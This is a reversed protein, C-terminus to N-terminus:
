DDDRMDAEDIEHCNRCLGADDKVDNFVEVEIADHFAVLENEIEGVFAYMEDWEFGEGRVKQHLAKIAATIKDVDQQWEKYYEASKDRAIDRLEDEDCYKCLDSEPPSALKYDDYCAIDMSVGSQQFSVQYSASAAITQYLAAQSKAVKNDIECQVAHLAMAKTPYIDDPTTVGHELQITYAWEKTSRGDYVDSYITFRTNKYLGTYM